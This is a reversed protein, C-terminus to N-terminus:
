VVDGLGAELRRFIAGGAVVALAAWAAALGLDGWLFPQGAILAARFLKLFPSLPNFGVAIAIFGDTPEYVIPAAFFEIALLTPLMQLVDRVYASLAALALAVGLTAALFLLYAVPALALRAGSSRGACAFVVVLVLVGFGLGAFSGLVKVIPLMAPPTPAHRVISANYVLSGAGQGLADQVAAWAMLGVLCFLAYDFPTGGGPLKGQFVYLFVPLYVAILLLPSIAVWLIGLLAKGYQAAISYRALYLLAYARGVVWQARPEGAIPTLVRVFALAARAGLSRRAPPAPPAATESV